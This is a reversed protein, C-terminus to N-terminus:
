LGPIVPLERARAKAAARCASLRAHFTHNKNQALNLPLCVSGILSSELEWPTENVVWSVFANAGLWKNLKDEGAGFTM